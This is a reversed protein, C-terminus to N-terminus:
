RVLLASANALNAVADTEGELLSALSRSLDRYLAPKPQTRDVSATFM